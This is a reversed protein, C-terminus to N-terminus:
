VTLNKHVTDLDKLSLLPLVTNVLANWEIKSILRYRGIYMDALIDKNDTLEPLIKAFLRFIRSIGVNDM